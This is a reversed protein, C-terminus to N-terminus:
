SVMMMKVQASSADHLFPSRVNLSNQFRIKVTLKGPKVAADTETFVFVKDIFFSCSYVLKAYRYLGGYLKFIM